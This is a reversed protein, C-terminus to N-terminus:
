KTSPEEQICGRDIFRYPMTRATSSGGAFNGWGLQTVHPNWLHITHSGLFFTTPHDKSSSVQLQGFSLHAETLDYGVGCGPYGARDSLFFVQSQWRQPELVM